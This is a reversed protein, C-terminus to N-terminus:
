RAGGIAIALRAASETEGANLLSSLCHLYWMGQQRRSLQEAQDLRFKGSAQMETAGQALPDKDRLRFYVKNQHGDQDRIIVSFRKSAM